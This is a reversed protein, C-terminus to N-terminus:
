TLFQHQKAQKLLVQGRSKDIKFGSGWFYEEYVIATKRIL